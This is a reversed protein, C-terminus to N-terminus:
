PLVHRASSSLTEEDRNSRDDKFDAEVAGEKEGEILETCEREAAEEVEEEDNEETEGGHGGVGQGGISVCVGVDNCPPQSQQGEHASNILAESDDVRSNVNFSGSGGVALRLWLCM